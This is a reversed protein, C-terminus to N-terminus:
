PSQATVVEKSRADEIMWVWRTGYIDAGAARKRLTYRRGEQCTFALKFSKENNTAGFTYTHKGPAVQVQKIVDSLFTGKGKQREGDVVEITRNETADVTCVGKGAQGGGLLSGSACGAAASALILLLIVRDM